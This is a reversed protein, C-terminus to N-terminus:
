TVPHPAPGYLSPVAHSVIDDDLVPRHHVAGARRAKPGVHRHGVPLDGFNACDRIRGRADDVGRVQDHGRAEDVRVRMVVGLDAPVRQNGRGRPVTHGAQHHAVAPDTQRGALGLAMLDGGPVEDVDLRNREVHQALADGPVPLGERFVHVGRGAAAAADVDAEHGRERREAMEHHAFLRHIARGRGLFRGPDLREDFLRHGRACESKRGGVHRLMDAILAPRDGAPLGAAVLQRGIAVRQALQVLAHDFQRQGVVHRDHVLGLVRQQVHQEGLAAPGHRPQRQEVAVVLGIGRQVRQPRHLRQKLAAGDRLDGAPREDDLDVQAFREDEGVQRAPLRGEVLRDFLLLGEVPIRIEAGCEALLHLPRFYEGALPLPGDHVLRAPRVRLREDALTHGLDGLLPAPVPQIRKQVQADLVIQLELVGVFQEIRVLVADGFQNRMVLRHDAQGVAPRM